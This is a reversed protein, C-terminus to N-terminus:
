TFIAQNGRESTIKVVYDQEPLHVDPHIFCLNEGASVFVDMELRQHLTSNMIWISVLHCTIPGENRFTLICGATRLMESEIWDAELDFQEDASKVGRIKMRWHGTENRFHCTNSEITQSRTEKTCSTNDTVYAIYGYGGTSYHAATYNYLQLTINVSGVTWASTFTWNMQKWGSPNSSGIFEIELVKEDSWIHLLTADIEWSDQTTDSSENAGKFRITFTPDNLYNTVTINNWGATLDTHLTQWANNNWADVRIDESTMTEGYICLEANPLNVTSNTWQVELDLEYNKPIKLVYITSQKSYITDTGTGGRGYTTEVKFSTSTTKVFALHSAIRAIDAYSLRQDGKQQVSVGDIEIDGSERSSTGSSITHIGALVLYSREGGPDATTVTSRVVSSSTTSAVAIDEDFELLEFADVRFAAIRVDRATSDSGVTGLQSQVRFTHQAATLGIKALAAHPEFQDRDTHIRRTNPTTWAAPYLDSGGDYDLWTEAGSGTPLESVLGCYAVIYDGASPPTFQLTALTQAGMITIDGNVEVYQLGAADLRLCLVHVNRAYAIAGANAQYQFRVTQLATTETVRTFHFYVNYPAIPTTSMTGQQVGTVGYAEGNIVYRFRAQDEAMSSSRVDASVLVLWEEDTSGPSFSVVAGSVDVWGTSTTSQEPSSEVQHFKLASTDEETLADFTEDPGAQQESFDSHTGKGASSDVDSESDEPFDSLDTLTCSRFTMNKNDDSYLDSINGSLWKTAGKLSYNLPHSAETETNPAVNLIAIKEQMREWDVQNMQYSSLIVNAVIIVILPLSLMLVVVSSVGRKDRKLRRIIDEM